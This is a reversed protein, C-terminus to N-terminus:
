GISRKQISIGQDSSFAICWQPCLLKVEDLNGARTISGLFPCLVHLDCLQLDLSCPLHDFVKWHISYLTDQVICVVHPLRIDYLVTVDMMLISPYKRKTAM